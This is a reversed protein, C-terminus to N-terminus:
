ASCRQSEVDGEKDQCCECEPHLDIYCIPEESYDM